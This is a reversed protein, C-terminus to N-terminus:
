RKSGKAEIPALHVIADGRHVVPQELRAIVISATPARVTRETSGYADAVVAIPHGASVQEGLDVLVRCVGSRPARSWRSSRLMRVEATSSPRDKIMELHAMVNLVGASGVSIPHEEFRWAQGGEFLLVKAGKRVAAERLSGDRVRSHLALPAGFIQALECTEPDDLDARIQPCNSRHDSGTHLDIGVDCRTVVETMLEHAFRSTLSGRTSGPFSRNLDSRYPFYRDGSAFGPVNVVPCALLTGKMQKPDLTALVRHIIEVGGVEDGHLAASVWMTPGEEVGHLVILPMSLWGGSPLRAPTLELESRTGPEAVAGAVAFPTM